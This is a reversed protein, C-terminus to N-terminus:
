NKKENNPPDGNLEKQLIDQDQVSTGILFLGWLKMQAIIRQQSQARSTQASDQRRM